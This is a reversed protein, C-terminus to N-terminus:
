ERYNRHDFAVVHSKNDLVGFNAITNEGFVFQGLEMDWMDDVTTSAM